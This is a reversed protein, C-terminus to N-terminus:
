PLASWCSAVAGPGGRSRSGTSARALATARSRRAPPPSGTAPQDTTAATIGYPGEDGDARSVRPLKAGEPPIVAAPVGQVPATVTLFRDRIKLIRGRFAGRGAGRGAGLVGGAAGRDPAGTVCVPPRARRWGLGAPSLRWPGCPARLTTIATCTSPTRGGSPPKWARTSSATSSISSRAPCTASIPRPASCTAMPPSCM